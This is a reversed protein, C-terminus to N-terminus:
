HRLCILIRREESLFELIKKYGSEDKAVYASTERGVPVKADPPVRATLLESVCPGLSIIALEDENSEVM